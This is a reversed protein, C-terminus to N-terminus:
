RQLKPSARIKYRNQFSFYVKQIIPHKVVPYKEARKKRDQCSEVGSTGEKYLLLYTKSLQGAFCSLSNTATLFMLPTHPFLKGVYEPYCDAMPKTASAMPASGRQPVFTMISLSLKSYIYVIIERTRRAYASTLSAGM